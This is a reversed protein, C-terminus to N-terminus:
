PADQCFLQINGSTSGLDVKASGDGCVYQDGKRSFALNYDIKGSVTDLQATFGPHEPLVASIRGSTSDANLVSFKALKVTISGSTSGIKVQEGDNIEVTVDGSTSGADCNGVRDAKVM